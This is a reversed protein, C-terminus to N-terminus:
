NEANVLMLEDENFCTIQGLVLVYCPYNRVDTDKDIKTILGIQGYYEDLDAPEMIRVLDGPKVSIKGM